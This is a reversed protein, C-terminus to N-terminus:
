RGGLKERWKTEIARLREATLPVTRRRFVLRRDEVTVNPDLEALYEPPAHREHAMFRLNALFPEIDAAEAVTLSGADADAFLLLLLRVFGAAHEPPCALATVFGRELEERGYRGDHDVDATALVKQLVERPLFTPIWNSTPTRATVWDNLGLVDIVAVDPMVWGVVGVSLAQTVPLDGADVPTRARAPLSGIIVDLSRQHANCRACDFQLQLWTQYRDFRRVFPQLWGPLREGVLDYDPPIVARNVAYHVWGFSAALGCLALGIVPARTTRFLSSLMAAASLSALPLLHSLVRYEFHDGGVKVVYYGVHVVTTAVAATASLHTTAVRMAGGGLARAAVLLWGLGFPLWLWLGNEFAYCTLYRWGAEPWADLVKAYYTNPLWDGYYARRFITQAVVALLPTTALLLKSWAARKRLGSVVATASTAAVLLLGDPRTLAAIAAWTSWACWRGTRTAAADVRFAAVVWAVFALNFLATELGSTQWQLFTRNSVAALVAAAAVVTGVPRGDRHTLRLAARAVVVFLLAGCCMSLPNAADPPEVGFWSWTAWLILAWLFGTYGEVPAFPAPNWVLGNGDHANAVYRFTIFADDCLFRLAHAGWVMGAFLVLLAVVRPVRVTARGGLDASPLPLASSMSRPTHCPPAITGIPVEGPAAGMAHAAPSRGAGGYPAM